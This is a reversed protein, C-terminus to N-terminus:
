LINNNYNNDTNILITLIIVLQLTREYIEAAKAVERESEPPFRLQTLAEPPQETVVTPAGEEGSKQPKAFLQSLTANLARDISTSAEELSVLVFGDGPTPNGIDYSLAPTSSRSSLHLKRKDHQKHICGLINKCM